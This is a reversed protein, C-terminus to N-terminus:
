IREHKLRVNGADERGAIDPRARVTANRGCHSLTRGCNIRNALVQFCHLTWIEILHSPLSATFLNMTIEFWVLSSQTLASLSTRAIPYRVWKSQPHLSPTWVPQAM